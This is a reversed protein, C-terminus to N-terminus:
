GNKALWEVLADLAPTARAAQPHNVMLAVAYVKGSHGLVYGALARTDSLTGTKMFARGSAPGTRMRSALTGDVGAIPLSDVFVRADKARWQNLLLQVMARPRGRELRSQGSGDDIAIDGDALGQDLLWAGVREQAGGLRTAGPTTPPALSLLLDRAADNNSTKNLERIVEALSTTSQSTWARATRPAPAPVRTKGTPAAAPTAEVVGGRLQGGAEAWLSAVVGTM